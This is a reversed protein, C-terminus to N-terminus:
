PHRSKAILSSTIRQILVRTQHRSSLTSDLWVGLHRVKDVVPGISQGSFSFNGARFAAVHAAIGFCLFACKEPNINLGTEKSWDVVNNISSQVAAVASQLDSPPAASEITSDDCYMHTRCNPSLNKSFVNCRTYKSNYEFRTGFCLFM